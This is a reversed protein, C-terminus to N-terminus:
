REPRGLFGLVNSKSGLVDAESWPIVEANQISRVNLIRTCLHPLAARSRAKSAEMRLAFYAKCICAHFDDNLDDFVYM